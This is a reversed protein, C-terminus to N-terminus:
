QADAFRIKRVIFGGAIVLYTTQSIPNPTIRLEGAMAADGWDRAADCLAEVLDAKTVDITAIM